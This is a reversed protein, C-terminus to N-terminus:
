NFRPSPPHTIPRRALWDATQAATAVANTFAKNASQRAVQGSKWQALSSQFATVAAVRDSKWKALAAQYDSTTDARAVSLGGVILTTSLLGISLKKLHIRM